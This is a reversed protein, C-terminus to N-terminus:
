PIPRDTASPVSNSGAVGRCPWSTSIRWAPRCRPRQEEGDGIILPLQAFWRPGRGFRMLLWSTGLPIWEWADHGGVRAFSAAAGALAPLAALVLPVGATIAAVAMVLGGGLLACQFVGLGLFVGSRDLPDFRYLREEREAGM